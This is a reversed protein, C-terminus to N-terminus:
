SANAWRDLFDKWSFYSVASGKTAVSHTRVSVASAALCSIARHFNWKSTWTATGWDGNGLRQKRLRMGLWQEGAATGWSSNGQQREGSTTRQRGNRDNRKMEKMEKSNKDNGQM